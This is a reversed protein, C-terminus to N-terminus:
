IKRNWPRWVIAKGPACAMADDMSNFVAVNFDGFLLADVAKKLRYSFDTKFSGTLGRNLVNKLVTFAAGGGWGLIARGEEQYLDTLREGKATYLFCGRGRKINGYRDFIHTYYETKNM